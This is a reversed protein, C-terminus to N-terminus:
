KTKDSVLKATLTGSVYVPNFENYAILGKRIATLVDLEATTDAVQVEIQVKVAKSM